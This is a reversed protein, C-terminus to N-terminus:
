LVNNSAKSAQIIQSVQVPLRASHLFGMMARTYSLVLEVPDDIRMTSQVTTSGLHLSRLGDQESVEVSADGTRSRHIRLKSLISM